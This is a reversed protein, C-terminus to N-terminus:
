TRTPKSARHVRLYIGINRLFMTGGDEPSFISITGEWKRRPRGLPRKRERKGVFIKFVNRLEEMAAVHRTWRMKRFKIM